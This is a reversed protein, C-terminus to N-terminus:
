RSYLHCHRFFGLTAVDLMLLLWNFVAAEPDTGSRLQHLRDRLQTLVPPLRGDESKLVAM